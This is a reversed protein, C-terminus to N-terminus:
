YEKIIKGSSRTTWEGWNGHWQRLNLDEPRKAPPIIAQFVQRAYSQCRTYFRIAQARKIV